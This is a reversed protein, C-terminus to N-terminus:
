MSLAGNKARKREHELLYIKRLRINEPTVEVYED